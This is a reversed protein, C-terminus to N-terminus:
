SCLFCMYAVAKGHDKQARVMFGYLSQWHGGFIVLVIEVCAGATAAIM